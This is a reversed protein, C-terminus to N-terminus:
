NLVVQAVAQAMDTASPSSAVAAVTFGLSEAQEATTPGSVIVPIATRSGLHQAVARAASPSRLIIASIDGSRLLTTSIPEPRVVSTEYVVGDTITWGRNRLGDPLARMAISGHPFVVTGGGTPLEALLGVASPLVPILDISVGLEQVSEATKSGVVAVQMGKLKAEALANALRDRGVLSAWSPMAIQSTVVLWDVGDELKALLVDANARSLSTSMNLYSDTVSGIGLAALAQADAENDNARVLLVPNVDSALMLKSAAFLGMARASSIDGIAANRTVRVRSHQHEDFLEAILTLEEGDFTAYAGAATTCEASIGVLVEREAATTFRALPDQLQAVLRALPDGERCEVALAGQAPAPVVVEPDLVESIVDTRGIRAIGAYALVVADVEGELAKRIRSDVNGRIPEIRLDPRQALLMASRRPSSTGIRAAHPLTALTLGDRCVLVDCPNEREPVAALVIGPEPASPLDKFSHVIVDVEGALLARRLSSVFLGPNGPQNLSTSTDDGDTRIHIEEWPLGAIESLANGVTASQTRALLSARTGLRIPNAM